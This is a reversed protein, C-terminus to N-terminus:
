SASGTAATLASELIALIRCNRCACPHRDGALGTVLCIRLSNQLTVAIADVLVPLAAIARTDAVAQMQRDFRDCPVKCVTRGKADAIAYSGQSCPRTSWPAPSIPHKIASM